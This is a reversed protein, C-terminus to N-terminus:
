EVLLMSVSFDNQFVGSSWNTLTSDASDVEVANPVVGTALLPMVGTVVLLFDGGGAEVVPDILFVEDPDPVVVTSPLSTVGDVVLGFFDGEEEVV